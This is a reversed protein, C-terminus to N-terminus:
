NGSVAWTVAANFLMAGAWDLKSAGNDGLMLAIRRGPATMGVMQTGKDYAFNTALSSNSSLTAIKIATSAPKGYNIMDASTYSAYTGPLLGATLPHTGSVNINNDSAKQGTNAQLDVMAMDDFLSSEWVIVPVSVSRFKTNVDTSSTTSSILVLDKGMADAALSAVGSKLSVVYGMRELNSKVAADGVNLTTSGVVMLAKKFIFDTPQKMAYAMNVMSYGGSYPDASDLLYKQLNGRNASATDMMLLALLGSIQPAAFSTGSGYGAKSGPL